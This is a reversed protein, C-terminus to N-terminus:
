QAVAQACLLVFRLFACADERSNHTDEQIAYPLPRQTLARLSNKLPPGLRHPYMISTDAVLYHSLRQRLQSKRSVRQFLRTRSPHYCRAPCRFLFPVLTTPPTPDSSPVHPLQSADIDLRIFTTHRVEDVTTDELQCVVAGLDFLFRSSFLNNAVGTINEVRDHQSPDFLGEREGLVTEMEARPLCEAWMAAMDVTVSSSDKSHPSISTHTTRPTVSTHTPLSHTLDFQRISSEESSESEDQDNDAKESSEGGAKSVVVDSNSDDLAASGDMYESDVSDSSGDSEQGSESARHDEDIQPLAFYFTSTDAKARPTLINRLDPTATSESPTTTDTVSSQNNWRKTQKSM